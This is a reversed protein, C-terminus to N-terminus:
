KTGTTGAVALYASRPIRGTCFVYMRVGFSVEHFYESFDSM